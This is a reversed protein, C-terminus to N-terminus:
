KFFDGFVAGLVTQNSQVIFQQVTMYSVFQDAWQLGGISLDLPCWTQQLKLGNGLKSQLPPSCHFLCSRRRGRRFIFAGQGCPSGVLASKITCPCSLFFIRAVMAAAFGRTPPFNTLPPAAPGPSGM